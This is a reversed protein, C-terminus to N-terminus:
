RPRGTDDDPSSILSAALAKNVADIRSVAGLKAFINRMDRKVTAESHGLWRAIQVNTMARAALQLTESERATLRGAHRGGQVQALSERSVSLLVSGSPESASRVAAILEQRGASKLLYGRIGAALLRRLLAPGDYMSLIIVATRPSTEAIRRVTETADAGPIEVDLLVIDPQAASVRAIATDSDGAEDVVAIDPQAELVWRLGDRVLAHDDVIVVRIPDTRDSM